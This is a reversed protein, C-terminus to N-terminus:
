FTQHLVVPDGAEDVVVAPATTGTFAVSDVEAWYSAPVAAAVADRPAAVALISSTTVVRGACAFRAGVLRHTEGAGELVIM